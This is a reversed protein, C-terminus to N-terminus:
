HGCNITHHGSIGQIRMHNGVLRYAHPFEAIYYELLKETAFSCRTGPPTSYNIVFSSHRIVLLFARTSHEIRAKKM